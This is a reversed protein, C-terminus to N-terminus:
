GSRHRQDRDVGPASRRWRRTAARGSGREAGQPTADTTTSDSACAGLTILGTGALGAGAVMKLVGRRQLLRPLDYDLGRDHNELDSERHDIRM